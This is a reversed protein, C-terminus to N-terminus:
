LNYIFIRGAQTWKTSVKSHEEDLAFTSTQTYGKDQYKAYLLWIDGQKFQVGMDHLLSNMKRASMGYDKSIKSVSLLSKSRLILDYYTAKPQYEHVQQEAVLRKTHEAELDAQAVKYRQLVDIMMDPNSLWDAATQPTLYVGDRRIAPLVENTVWHRFKKAERRISENKGQRSADFILDYVGSENIISVLRMQGSASVQHMLKDEENVHNRIANDPRVYGLVRAVDQGVFYPESDVLITRIQKREFIFPTIKNM